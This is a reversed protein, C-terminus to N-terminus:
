SATREKWEISMTGSRPDSAPAWRLSKAFRLASEDAGTSGSPGLLLIQVPVGWENVVVFFESRLGTHDESGAFSSLAGSSVIRGDLGSSYFALYPICEGATEVTPNMMSRIHGDPHKWIRWVQDEVTPVAVPPLSILETDRAQFSPLGVGQEGIPGATVPDAWVPGRVPLPTHRLVYQHLAPDDAPLLIVAGPLDAHKRVGPVTVHVFFSVTIICLAFVLMWLLVRWRLIGTDRWDFSLGLHFDFLRDRHKKSLKM